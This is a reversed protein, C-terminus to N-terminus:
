YAHQDTIHTSQYAGSRPKSAHAPLEGRKGEFCASGIAAAAWTQAVRSSPVSQFPRKQLPRYRRCPSIPPPPDHRTRVSAFIPRRSGGRKPFIQFEQRTASALCRTACFVSPSCAILRIAQFCRALHQMTYLCVAGATWVDLTYDESANAILASPAVKSQPEASVYKSDARAPKRSGRRYDLPKDCQDCESQSSWRRQKEAKSRFLM